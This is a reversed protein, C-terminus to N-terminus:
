SSLERAVREAHGTAEVEAFARQAERLHQAAGDADGLVELLRAREEIIFPAFARAGGLYTALVEAYNVEPDYDHKALRLCEEISISRAVPEHNDGGAAHEGSM